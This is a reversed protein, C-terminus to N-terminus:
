EGYYLENITVRSRLSQGCPSMKVVSVNYPVNYPIRLQVSSRNLSIIFSPQPIIDVHYTYLSNGQGRTWELTVVVGNGEFNESAIRVTVPQLDIDALNIVLM